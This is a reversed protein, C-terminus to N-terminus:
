VSPKEHANFMTLSVNANGNLDTLRLLEGRKLVFSLHGGGPLLEEAFVPFVATSDTM